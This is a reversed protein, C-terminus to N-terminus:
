SIKREAAALPLYLRDYYDEVMRRASFQETCTQISARMMMVWKAKDLEYTPLIEETLVRYLAHLDHSDQDPGTYGDGFQWGNKGHACGEVWWGDLTSFNLVGNMGAKMGSTGSAELPRQPNNLWVDCGRTLIQGLRMDYNELFVVKGPFQRALTVINAVMNKGGEDQPHAKGSFVLQIRDNELLPLIAERNRFILDGRKYTAARRAFGILLVEPNLTQGTRRQIEALLLGKNEQHARLLREPDGGAQAINPAQWTGQHVGNTIAIIPAKETVQQWM